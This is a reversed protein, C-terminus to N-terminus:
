WIDVDLAHELRTLTMAGPNEYEGRELRMIYTPSVGAMRALRRMSLGQAVRATRVRMGVLEGNTM